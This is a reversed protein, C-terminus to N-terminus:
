QQSTDKSSDTGPQEELTPATADPLQPSSTEESVNKKSNQLSSPKATSEAGASAGENDKPASRDARQEDVSDQGASKKTPEASDAKHVEQKPKKKKLDKKGASDDTGAQIDFFQKLDGFTRLPAQGAKMEDTLPKKTKRDPRSTYTRPGRDQKKSKRPGSGSKRHGRGSPPGKREASKKQDSNKLFKKKPNQSRGRNAGHVPKAGPRIM